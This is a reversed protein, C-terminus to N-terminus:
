FTGCYWERCYRGLRMLWKFIAVLRFAHYNNLHPVQSFKFALPIEKKLYFLFHVQFTLNVYM